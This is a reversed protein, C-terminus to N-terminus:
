LRDHSDPNIARSERVCKQRRSSRVFAKPNEIHQENPFIVILPLTKGLRSPLTDSHRLRILSPAFTFPMSTRNPTSLPIHIRENERISTRSLDRHADHRM